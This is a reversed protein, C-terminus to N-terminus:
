KTSGKLARAAAIWKRETVTDCKIEDGTYNGVVILMKELAERLAAIEAAQAAYEQAAKNLTGKDIGTDKYAIDLVWELETVKENCQIKRMIGSILKQIANM